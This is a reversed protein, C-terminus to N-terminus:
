VEDAQEQVSSSGAFKCRLDAAPKQPVIGNDFLAQWEDMVANPVAELGDFIRAAFSVAIAALIAKPMREYIPGLVQSYENTIKMGRMPREEAGRDVPLRRMHAFQWASWPRVNSMARFVVMPLGLLDRLVAVFEAYKAPIAAEGCNTCVARTEDPERREDTMTGGCSWSSFSTGRQRGVTTREYDPGRSLVADLWARLALFNWGNAGM